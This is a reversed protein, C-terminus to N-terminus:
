GVKREPQVPSSRESVKAKDKEGDNNKNALYVGFFMVAAGLTAVWSPPQLTELSQIGVTAAPVALSMTTVKGVRDIRLMANWLFLMVAGGFTILYVLDVFFGESFEVSPFIVSGVVFPVSGLLFQTALIPLPDEKRVRRYFVSVIAYSLANLVTLVAGLLQSGHSLTLSFIVVGSFGVIAGAIELTRPRERALVYAVPISFLPLTYSLVASDGTSVYQLGLIWFLTASSFASTIILSSPTLVIKRTIALFILGVAIYRIAMLVYPPGYQLADKAFEYQLSAVIVYAVLWKLIGGSRSRGSSRGAM